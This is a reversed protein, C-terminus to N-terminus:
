GAPIGHASGTAHTVGSGTLNLSAGDSLRFAARGDTATIVGTNNVTSNAGIIDVATGNVSISSTNNLTGGNILVGTSDAAALDITGSHNLTGGTLVKYGPAGVAVNDGNLVAASNLVSAGTAGEEGTITTSGGRVIGATAGNQALSINTSADITAEAGGEVRLATADRGNVRLTM